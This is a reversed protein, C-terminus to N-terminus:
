PESFEMWIIFPWLWVLLNADVISKKSGIKDYYRLLGYVYFGVIIYCSWVTIAITM